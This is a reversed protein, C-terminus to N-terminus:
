SKIERSCNHNWCLIRLNELEEKSLKGKIIAQYFDRGTSYKKRHEKGGGNIHDITLHNLESNGCMTCKLENSIIKYAKIKLEETEKSCKRARSCNHNWCLIRLSRIEDEPIKGGIIARYIADGKGFKKRHEVGNNESHDITLHAM